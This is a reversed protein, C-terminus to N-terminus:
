ADKLFSLYAQYTQFLDAKCVVEYPSHMGLVGVGCDVVKIGLDAVYLAVTGGGGEDVKGLTGPQWVINNDNFIKRIKGMYEASADSAGSKGGSGTYKEIIVGFGLKASNYLDNVQTYMPDVVGGVDGSICFSNEFIDRLNAGGCEKGYLEQLRMVSHTFFKSRIGSIGFSGIEEKDVLLACITKEPVGEFDVISRYAPYSCARDDHGYAGIMSRDFGIDKAKLAPVVEIEASVFDEEIMGYLENLIGLVTDKVKDKIEKEECPISGVILTLNEGEIGELLKKEGQVKRSLHPLLDNITFVPDNDGEGISIDVASGDKRVVVGHLSLPLNVWQYKKIGGYYHTKMMALSNEEILPMPKLDLRPSDLHSAIFNLGKAIDKKGLIVLMLNKNENRFLIREGPEPKAESIDKFGLKRADKELYRVCLRETKCHNMFGKYDDAFHEIKKRGSDSINKWSSTREYVFKSKVEDAM